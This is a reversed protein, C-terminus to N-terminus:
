NSHGPLLLKTGESLITPARQRDSGKVGSGTRARARRALGLVIFGLGAGLLGNGIASGVIRLAFDSVIFIVPFLHVGHTLYVIPYWFVQSAIGALMYTSIDYSRNRFYAFTLDTGLGTVGYLLHPAHIGSAFVQVFGNITMAVTAAGPKRVQYATLVAGYQLWLGIDGIVPGGFYYYVRLATQLKFLFPNLVTQVREDVLPTLVGIIVIIIM